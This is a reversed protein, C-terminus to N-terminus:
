GLRDGLRRVLREWKAREQRATDALEEATTGTVIGGSEELLRRTAPDALASLMAARVREQRDSALGSPALLVYSSEIVSEPYGADAISPVGPLLPSTQRSLLALARAEGRQLVAIMGPLDLTVIDIQGAVLDTIAPAAGRYPVHEIAIGANLAFLEGALHSQGSQGASGFNLRDGKQRAYAILDAVNRVPLKGSVALVLPFSVAASIAAFDRAADYPLNPIAIPQLSLAGITTFGLTHGDPRSRALASLGISGNAGSRNEIVIPQGLKESMVRGILRAVTDVPGGPPFPVIVTVPRDPFTGQAHAAIPM